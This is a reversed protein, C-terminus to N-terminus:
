FIRSFLYNLGILLAAMVITFILMVRLYSTKKKPEGERGTQDFKINNNDMIIKIKIFLYIFSHICSPLIWWATKFINRSIDNCKIQVFICSVEDFDFECFALSYTPLYTPRCSTSSRLRNGSLMTKTYLMTEFFTRFSGHFHLLGNNALIM